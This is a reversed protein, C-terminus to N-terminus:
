RSSPVGAGAPAAGADPKQYNGTERNQAEYKSPCKALLTTAAFSGDPRLSGEVVVESGDVFTDPTERAYVVPLDRRGDSMVFAAGLAGPTRRISGPVVNGNVRYNEGLDSQRSELFESVTLYYVLSGRLGVGFLVVFGCVLLSVAILFKRSVPQAM